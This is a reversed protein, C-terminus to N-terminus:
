VDGIERDSLRRFKSWGSVLAPEVRDGAVSWEHQMLVSETPQVHRFTQLVSRHRRVVFRELRRHLVREIRAIRVRHDVPKGTLLITERRRAVWSKRKDQCGVSQSLMVSGAAHRAEETM